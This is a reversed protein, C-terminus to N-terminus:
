KTTPGNWERTMVNWGVLCLKHGQQIGSTEDKYLLQHRGRCLLLWFDTQIGKLEPTSSNGMTFTTIATCKEITLTNLLPFSFDVKGICFGKLCPLEDLKLSKLRPLILESMKGDSEEEEEVVINADKVIVGEMQRCISISLEQLQKLSGVISSSFVHQLSDCGAICVTTLNPFGFLTWRNCKWIYRLCPLTYLELSKLHPLVIENMKGDYEEEKEEVVINGDQVIVEEIHNCSSIHLEQLQLLSGVMSSNLVHELMDCKKIFLRKLNPFEFVTCQNSKWIHRLCPLWKLEVQTLNPLNVLTTTTQSSEDFGSNTGEFAEFVEEVLDCESVQIKELKQLQLLESSPVIKQVSIDGAVRLEILNHFSWHIVESTAAPCSFSTSEQLQGTTTTTVHSNFWCEPSHKGLRTRVYKLQPATSGGATFVKMQPCGYIGVKKLSPWQFENTGLFFGVLEQLYELHIRKLRPFVVVKSSSAMTTQQVGHEEAKVVIVKMAKCSEILLEELQVLSELTSFTFIHELLDCDDIELRKLNGLELKVVSKNIGQTEFVEKMGHCCYIELEQLKQMHGAAYWPIVSSLAHCELIEIERAYQCLSWSVGGRQSFKYQDLFSAATTTTSNFSIENNRGKAGGGGGGISKLNQLGYLSLSDLRPFLTTSIHTSTSTIKEEYEDDRNSFVEEIADCFGIKVKKLNSLHEAMLPSFLYKISRCWELKITTLNHFPSEVHLGLFENWNCKWVHSMSEMDLIKMKELYPLMRHQNDQSRPTSKMEFIVEVGQYRDLKLNRLNHCSNILCPPFVTTEKEQSSEHERGIEGSNLIAMSTLAGLDFNTTTPSYINRFRMCDRIYISEVAQFGRIPIGSNNEGGKIRWVEQLKGLDWVDISRLSNSGGEKGTEGVCDLDINFLAEISGCDSVELEELHHLLPMPNCPFLDVLKDCRFVQIRRLSISGKEIAAVCDLDFNFIAEISGCNWLKLDELHCMLPMPNCPFLNVLNKCNDVEIERLKVEESKQFDCPWIEKLNEMREIHLRQLKPILVQFIINNYYVM